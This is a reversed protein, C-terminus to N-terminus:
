VINSARMCACMGAAANPPLSGFTLSLADHVLLKRKGYGRDKLPVPICFLITSSALLMRHQSPQLPLRCVRLQQPCSAHQHQGARVREGWVHVPRSESGITRGIYQWSELLLFLTTRVPRVQQILVSWRELAKANMCHGLPNPHTMWRVAGAAQSAALIASPPDHVAHYHIAHM